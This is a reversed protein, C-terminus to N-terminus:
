ELSSRESATRLDQFKRVDLIEKERPEIIEETTELTASPQEEEEPKTDKKTEM